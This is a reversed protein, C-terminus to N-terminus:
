HPSMRKLLNDKDFFQHKLAAVVHLALLGITLNTTLGHISSLWSMEFYPVNFLNFITLNAFEPHKGAILRGMAAMGSIPILFLMAYFALHLAHSGKAQWAPMPLDPPPPNMLRWVLRLVTLALITVGLSAHLGPNAPAAGGFSKILGEGWFLMYILLIATIWHLWIAVQTYRTPSVSM